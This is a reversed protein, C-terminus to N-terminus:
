SEELHVECQVQLFEEAEAERTVPTVLTFMGGCERIVLISKFM